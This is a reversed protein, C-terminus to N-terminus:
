DTRHPQSKTQAKTQSQSNPTRQLKPNPAQSKVQERLILPHVGGLDKRLVNLSDDILQVFGIAVSVREDGVQTIRLKVPLGIAAPPPAHRLAQLVEGDPGLNVQCTHPARDIPRFLFPGNAAARM